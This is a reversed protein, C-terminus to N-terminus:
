PAELLGAIEVRDLREHVDKAPALYRTTTELSKHGMWHQVTRVDFGARLMRTAYTSRFKRLDFDSSDLGARKAVDKCRDLMHLERNGRPSPFVFRCQDRRAHERLLNILRKPVPVEREEWRKPYFGLDPKATVRITHLHFNLDEWLLYVVEQERFGTLLFTLFLAHEEKSCAEFFRKLDDDMYEQPLTTIRQPLDLNRMLGARGQKKLFQAVIVVNHIITNNDLRHKRKLFVTFDNLDETTISQVTGKGSFFELFRDLVARYKRLTNTKKLSEVLELYKKVAVHLPTKRLEQEAEFTRLGLAKGELFHKKRRAIEQAQAVTVGAAQRKRKGNEYWEIFYRGGSLAQWDTRGHKDKPIAVLKWKDDSKVQKLINVRAVVAETL